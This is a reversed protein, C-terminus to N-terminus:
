SMESAGCRVGTGGRRKELSVPKFLTVVNNSHAVSVAFPHSHALHHPQQLVHILLPDVDLHDAHHVAVRGHYATGGKRGEQQSLPCDGTQNGQNVCLSLLNPGQRLYSFLM